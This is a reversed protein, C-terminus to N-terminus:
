FPHGFNLYIKGRYEPPVEEMARAYDLRIVGIPTSYGLGFGAGIRPNKFSIESYDMWLNGIDTFLTAYVKRHIPIRFELNFLLEDLGSRKGRPDPSGISFEEFGRMSGYGGMDLRVDTSIDEPNERPITIVLRFRLALTIGFPLPRYSAVDLKGRDFHNDGGLFGGAYEILSLLRLGRHPNLMNDRGEYVLRESLRNTIIPVKQLSARRFNYLFSILSFLAIERELVLDFSFDSEKYEGIYLSNFSPSALLNFGSNLLYLEKYTLRINEKRDILVINDWDKFEPTARLSLDVILRQLNGFLNLDGGRFNVLGKKPSEYGFGLQFFRSKEEKLLFTLDISDASTKKEQVNIDTFLETKYLNSQSEYVRSPLYLDGEKIRMEREVVSSRVENLGEFTIDRIWVRIGEKINVELYVGGKENDELSKQIKILANAFGKEAYKNSLAYEGAGIVSEDYYDGEKISLIKKVVEDSFLKNGMIEVSDIKSRIGEFIYYTMKVENSEKIFKGERKKIEMNYFGKSRYYSIIRRAGEQTFRQIYPDGQKIPLIEKLTANSLFHNGEFAIEAIRTNETKKVEKFCGSLLFISIFILPAFRNRKM